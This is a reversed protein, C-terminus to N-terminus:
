SLFYYLCIKTMVVRVEVEKENSENNENETVAESLTQDNKSSNGGQYREFSEMLTSSSLEFDMKQQSDFFLFSPLFCFIFNVYNLDLFKM